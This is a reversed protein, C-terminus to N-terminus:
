KFISLVLANQRQFYNPGWDRGGLFINIVLLSKRETMVRNETVSNARIQNQGRKRNQASPLLM